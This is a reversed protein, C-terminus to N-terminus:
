PLPNLIELSLSGTLIPTDIKSRIYLEVPSINPMDHYCPSSTSVYEVSSLWHFGAPHSPGLNDFYIHVNPGDSRVFWEVGALLWRATFEIRNFMANVTQNGTLFGTAFRVFLLGGLTSTVQTGNDTYTISPSVPDCSLCQAADGFRSQYTGCGSYFFGGYQSSDYLTLPFQVQGDNIAFTVRCSLTLPKTANACTACLGGCCNCNEALKGDKVIIAGNKTALPM